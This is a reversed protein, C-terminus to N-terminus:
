VKEHASRVKLAEFLNILSITMLSFVSIGIILIILGVNFGNYTVKAVFPHNAMLLAGTLILAIAIVAIVITAITNSRKANESVVYIGKKKRIVYRVVHNIVILLTGVLVFAMSWVWSWYGDQGMQYDAIRLPEMLIRTLGYWIIYGAGLDGLEIYKRLLRGFVKTIVFYGLVNALGEIFFLPVYIQGEPAFGATSSFTMNRWIIEPLWKWYTVDSLFGHVECNFYNGIRGVAQALLICPVVIDIGVFVSKDKHRWMYFLVGAIIGTLAGGLITLGGEWIAFVSWFPRNQFEISWNGVVYWLRAGIIGAPFAVYFTSELLGHKGYEKYMYHDCVFYVLIAGSLICIAYFTINPSGGNPTVLGDTFSIGNPLPYTLYPALGNTYVFFFVVSLVFGAILLYYSWKSLKEPINKDRFRIILGNILSLLTFPFLLGGVVLQFVYGVEFAADLWNYFGFSMILFSISALAIFVLQRLAFNRYDKVAIPSKIFSATQYISIGTCIAFAISFIIALIM